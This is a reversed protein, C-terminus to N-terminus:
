VRVYSYRDKIYRNLYQGVSSAAILARYTTQPVNAYDYVAGSNFFVRLTNTSKTYGVKAVNSSQVTVEVYDPATNRASPVKKKSTRLEDDIADIQAQLTSRLATLFTVKDTM